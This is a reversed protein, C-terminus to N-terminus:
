ERKWAEALQTGKWPQPSVRTPSVRALDPGCDRPLRSAWGWGWGWGRGRREGPAAGGLGLAGPVGVATAGCQPRAITADPVRGRSPPRGQGGPKGSREPVIVAGQSGRLAGGRRRSLGKGRHKTPIMKTVSASRNGVDKPLLRSLTRTGSAVQFPNPLRGTPASPRPIRKTPRYFKSYSLSSSFNEQNLARQVPRVMQLSVLGPHSLLPEEPIM